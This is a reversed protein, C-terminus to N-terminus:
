NMKRWHSWKKIRRQLCHDIIEHNLTDFRKEVDDVTDEYVDGTRIHIIFQWYGHLM